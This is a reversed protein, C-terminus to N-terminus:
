AKEEPPSEKPKLAGPGINRDSLPPPLDTARPHVVNTYQEVVKMIAEPPPASKFVLEVDTLEPSRGDKRESRPSVEVRFSSRDGVYNDALSTAAKLDTGTIRVSFSVRMERLYIGKPSVLSILPVMTYHREDVQMRAMKPLFTGAPGLDGAERTQDFFQDLLMMYQNALMNQASSAAHQVGRVIASLTEQNM